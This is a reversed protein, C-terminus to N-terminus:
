VRRPRSRHLRPLQRAFGHGDRLRSTLVSVAHKAVCSTGVLLSVLPLERGSSARGPRLGDVVASLRFRCRPRLGSLRREASSRWSGPLLGRVITRPGTSEPPSQTVRVSSRGVRPLRLHQHPAGSCRAPRRSLSTRSCHGRRCPLGLGPLRRPCQLGSAPTNVAEPLPPLHLGQEEGRRPM